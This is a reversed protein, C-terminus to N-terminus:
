PLRPLNRELWRVLPSDDPWNAILRDRDKEWARNLGVLSTHPTMADLDILYIRDNHWLLNTAKLDGHTIRAASLAKFLDILANGVTSDPPAAPDLYERLNQGPCDETVLWARGRLPGFRREVIALPRPTAIGLAQLRHAALWSHWGRTPRWARSLAHIVGKINYRKVVWVASGIRIRSVTATNGQKLPQGEAMCRDPDDIVPSLRAEEDRAVIQLSSFRRRAVYRSCSRGAKDLYDHIRKDRAQQIAADLARPDDTLTPNARRYKELLRVPELTWALPFQVILLALNARAKSDALHTLPEGSVADGDVLMMRGDANLFNGPHLDNHILGAAHLQGVLAFCPALLTAVRDDQSCTGALERIQEAMTTAGDIFRTLILYGGDSLEEAAIIEPTAVGAKNLARIGSAEREWHRRANNGFFLKALARGDAGRAEGVVRKGPLHRLVSVFSITSGDPRRIAFPLPPPAELVKLTPANLLRINSTLSIDSM